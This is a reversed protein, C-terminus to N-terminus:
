PTPSQPFKWDADLVIRGQRLLPLRGTGFYDSAEVHLEVARPLADIKTGCHLCAFSLYYLGPAFGIKPLRCIVKGVAPLEPVNRCQIDTHLFSLRQGDNAEIGIGFGPNRLPESHAYVIEITVAEGVGVHNTPNCDEDYLNIEEIIPQYGPLRFESLPMRTSSQSVVRSLYHEVVEDTPGVTELQGSELLLTSACLNQIAAMNHSVFLVTRGGRAVDGMKGLCKKQFEADGVALVEDVLLIEPELHAAVAFALRVRMGSSFRKVPTDLFKEVGSFDVIEDFKHKISARPMGLVAGNLFVNERGTLEPHMGTGVELLSGVHGRVEARGTTPETIRTLIKLLTSKGAGNRGIIGVVEGPQVEFSVDKLAWIREVKRSTGSLHRFRRLPAAAANMITERLTRYGRERLGLHYQKGLDEVRIAPHAM